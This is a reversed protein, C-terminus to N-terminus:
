KPGTRKKKHTGPTYGRTVLELREGDLQGGVDAFSVGGGDGEGEFGGFAGHDFDVGDLAGCFSM